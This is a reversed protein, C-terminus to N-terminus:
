KHRMFAWPTPGSRREWTLVVADLPDIYTNGLLQDFSFISPRNYIVEIDHTPMFRKIIIDSVNPRFCDHLEVLVDMKQLAPYQAPNLLADEAGEIDMLVLTGDDAYSAFEEGRFAGAITIRNEVHNLMAMDRCQARAKEDVDFAFIKATPMRLALGVSYYGFACGINLIQRYPHAIIRQFVSHLEKEYNGFLEPGHLGSELIEASLQMGAFPGSHVRNGIKERLAYLLTAEHILMLTRWLKLLRFDEPAPEEMIGKIITLVKAAQDAPYQM